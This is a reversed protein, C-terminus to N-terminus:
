LGAFRQLLIAIVFKIGPAVQKIRYKYRPSPSIQRFRYYNKTVDVKLDKFGHEHIWKRAGSLTFLSRSLLVSQVKTTM